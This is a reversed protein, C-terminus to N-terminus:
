AKTTDHTVSSEITGAPPVYDQFSLSYVGKTKILNPLLATGVEGVNNNAWLMSLGGNTWLPAQMPEWQENYNNSPGPPQYNLQTLGTTYTVYSVVMRDSKVPLSLEANGCDYVCQLSAAASLTKSRNSVPGSDGASTLAFAAGSAFVIALALKKIKRM